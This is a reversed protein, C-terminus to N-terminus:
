RQPYATFVYDKNAVITHPPRQRTAAGLTLAALVPELVAGKCTQITAFPGTVMLHM